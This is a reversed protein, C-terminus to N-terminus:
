CNQRRSNFYEKRIKMSTWMIFLTSIFTISFVTKSCYWIPVRINISIKLFWIIFIINNINYKKTTWTWENQIPYM